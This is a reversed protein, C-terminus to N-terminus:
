QDHHRDQRALLASDASFEAGSRDLGIALLGLCADIERRHDQRAKSRVGYETPPPSVRDDGKTDHHEENALTAFRKVGFVDVVAAASCVSRPM